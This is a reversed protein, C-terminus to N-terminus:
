GERLSQREVEGIVIGNPNTRFGRTYGEFSDNPFDVDIEIVDKITVRKAWDPPNVGMVQSLTSVNLDVSFSQREGDSYQETTNSTLNVILGVKKLKQIAMDLTDNMEMIEVCVQEQSSLNTIVFTLHVDGPLSVDPNSGTNIDFFDLRIRKILWAETPSLKHSDIIQDPTQASVQKQIRALQTKLAASIQNCSLPSTEVKSTAPMTCGSSAIAAAALVITIKNPNSM